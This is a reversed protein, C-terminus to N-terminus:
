ANQCVDYLIFPGDDLIDHSHYRSVPVAGMSHRVLMCHTQMVEDTPVTDHDIMDITNLSGQSCLNSLCRFVYENSHLKATLHQGFLQGFLISFNSRGYTDKLNQRFCKIRELLQLWKPFPVLCNMNIRLVISITIGLVL